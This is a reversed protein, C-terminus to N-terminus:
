PSATCRISGFLTVNEKIKIKITKKQNNINYSVNIELTKEVNELTFPQSRFFIKQHRCFQPDKNLQDHFKQLSQHRTSRVSSFITPKKTPNEELATDVM